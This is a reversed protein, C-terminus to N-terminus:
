QAVETKLSRDFAMLALRFLIYYGLGIAAAVFGLLGLIIAVPLTM